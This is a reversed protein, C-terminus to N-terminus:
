PPPEPNGAPTRLRADHEAPLACCSRAKVRGTVMGVLVLAFPLVALTAWVLRM